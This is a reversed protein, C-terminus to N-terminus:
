LKGKLKALVEFPNNKGTEPAEEGEVTLSAGPGLGLAKEDIDPRRPYPDLSLSLEEAAIEGVDIENGELPEAEEPDILDGAADLDRAFLLEIPAEVTSAVPDLTVVCTQVVDASLTGSLELVDDAEIWKLEIHADLRDLSVLGFRRALAAREDADAAIDCITGDDGIDELRVPVSFEAQIDPEATM